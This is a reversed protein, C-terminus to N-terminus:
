INKKLIKGQTLRLLEQFYNDIDLNTEDLVKEILSPRQTSFYEKSIDIAQDKIRQSNINVVTSKLCNKKLTEIQKLFDDIM